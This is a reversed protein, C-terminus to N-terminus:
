PLIGAAAEGKAHDGAIKRRTAFQVLIETVIAGGIVATVIWPITPGFYLDQASVVIAIALAGVPAFILTQREYPVLQPLVRTRSIRIALWKGALRAAVFLVMLAWGQWSRGDWLSGAVLLFLLYVPRELRELADRVHQKSGGPLNVLIAGAIFCVVLPSLRLFGAIGATFSISGLMLLTFEPGPRIKGLTAYILGGMTTGIGLTLFLWATGPLQWSVMVASPRFYAALLMLGLVGALQELQVVNNVRSVWRPDVGWERFAYPASRAAMAGATGLIFADRLFAANAPSQDTFALILACGAVIVGFPAAATAMSISAVGPGLSEVLRTDFRFGVTFGIWGLGLALLPRLEYLVSLSLISVEPSSAVAGLIFFPFGATVLHLIGLRREFALVRWHGGLYALALLISMGLVARIVVSRRALASNPAAPPAPAVLIPFEPQSRGQWEPRLAPPAEAIVSAPSHPGATQQAILAVPWLLLPALRPVARM